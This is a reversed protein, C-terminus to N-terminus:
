FVLTVSGFWSTELGGWGGGWYVTLRRAIPSPNLVLRFRLKIIFVHSDSTEETVVSLQLHPDGLKRGTYINTKRWNEPGCDPGPPVGIDNQLPAPGVSWGPVSAEGRGSM